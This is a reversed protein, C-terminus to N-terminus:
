EGCQKRVYLQAAETMEDIHKMMHQLDVSACYKYSNRHVCCFVNGEHVKFQKLSNQDVMMNAQGLYGIQNRLKADTCVTGHNMVDEHLQARAAAAEAKQRAIEAAEDEIEQKMRDRESPILLSSHKDLVHERDLTANHMACHLAWFKHGGKKGATVVKSRVPLPTAWAAPDKHYNRFGLRRLEEAVDDDNPQDSVVDIADM